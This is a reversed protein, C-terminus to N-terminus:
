GAPMSEGRHCISLREVMALEATTARRKRQGAIKEVSGLLGGLGADHTKEAAPLRCLQLLGAGHSDTFVYENEGKDCIRSPRFLTVDVDGAVKLDFLRIADSGM